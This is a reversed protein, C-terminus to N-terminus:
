PLSPLGGAGPIKSTMNSTACSALIGTAHQAVYGQLMSTASLLSLNSGSGGAFTAAAASIVGPSSLASPTAAAPNPMRSALAACLASNAAPQQGSTLAAAAQPMAGGIGQAHLGVPYAAFLLLAAAIMAFLATKGFGRSVPSRFASWQFNM